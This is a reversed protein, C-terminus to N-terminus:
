HILVGGRGRLQLHGQAVTCHWQPCPLPKLVVVREEAARALHQAVQASPEIVLREVFPLHTSRPTITGLRLARVHQGMERPQAQTCWLRWVVRSVPSVDRKLATRRALPVCTRPLANFTGESDYGWAQSQSPRRARIYRTESQSHRNMSTWVIAADEHRARSVVDRAVGVEIARRRGGNGASM